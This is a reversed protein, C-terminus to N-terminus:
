WKGKLTGKEAYFNTYFYGSLRTNATAIKDNLFAQADNMGAEFYENEEHNLKTKGDAFIEAIVEPDLGAAKFSKMKDTSWRMDIPLYFCELLYDWAANYYLSSLRLTKPDSLDLDCLELSGGEFLLYVNYFTDLQKKPDRM